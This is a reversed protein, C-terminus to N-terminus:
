ARGRRGGRTATAEESKREGGNATEEELTTEDVTTTVTQRRSGASRPEDPTEARRGIRIADDRLSSFASSSPAGPRIPMMM